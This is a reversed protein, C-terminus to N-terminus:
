DSMEFLLFEADREGVNRLEVERAASDTGGVVTVFAGDGEELMLGGNLQVRAGGDEFKDSAAVTPGRYGSRMIAHVYAKTTSAALTHKVSSKPSLISAYMSLSAHVPAPGEADREDSVGESDAPAVVKVLQDRKDADSCRRNYYKPSLGRTSPLGWIQLFHVDQKPNRNYESHAIGTGASTMQIDGRRIIELNGMSDKHELEGDVIYSWIEFERHQHTGFGTGADVRDENIVRLPGWASFAPDYYSAFSFTHFTKLWGHHAHGRAAHKRPVIKLAAKTSM